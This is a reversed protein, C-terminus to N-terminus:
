LIVAHVLLIVFIMAHEAALHTLLAKGKFELKGLAVCVCVSVTERQRM